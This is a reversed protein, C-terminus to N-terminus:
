WDKSPGSTTANKKIEDGKFFFNKKDEKLSNLLMDAEEKSLQRTAIKDKGEKQLKDDGKRMEPIMEKSGKQRDQGSFNESEGQAKKEGKGQKDKGEENKKEKNKDTQKQGSRQQEKLKEMVLELNHKADKDNPDIELAKKYYEAAEYLKGERYFCNGLNYYSREKLAKFSPDKSRNAVDLYGEIAENYNKLKYQTNSINYKLKIDEPNEVQAELFVKLAEKYNRKDYLEKGNKFYSYISKASTISPNFLIAFVLLYIFIRGQGGKYFPPYPSQKFYYYQKIM